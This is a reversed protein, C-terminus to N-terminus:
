ASARCWGHYHITLIMAIAEQEGTSARLTLGRELRPFNFYKGAHRRSQTRPRRLVQALRAQRADRYCTSHWSGSTRPHGSGSCQRRGPSLSPCAFQTVAQAKRAPEVFSRDKLEDCAPIPLFRGFTLSQMGGSYPRSSSKRTQVVTSSGENELLEDHFVYGDTRGLNRPVLSLDDALLGGQLELVNPGDPDAQLKAM